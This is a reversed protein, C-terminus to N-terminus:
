PHSLRIWRLFPAMITLLGLLSFLCAVIWFRVPKEAKRIIGGGSLRITGEYLCICPYYYIATGFAIISFDVWESAFRTISVVILVAGMIIFYWHKFKPRYLLSSCKAMGLYVLYSAFTILAIIGGAIPWGHSGLSYALIALFLVFVDIFVRPKPDKISDLKAGYSRKM